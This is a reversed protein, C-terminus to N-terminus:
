EEKIRSFMSEINNLLKYRKMSTSSRAFEEKVLDIYMTFGGDDGMYFTSWDEDNFFRRAKLQEIALNDFSTAKFHRFCKYLYVFLQRQNLKISAENENLYSEGRRLTKYGLILLKSDKPLSLLQKISHIGNIVHVVMDGRLPTYAEDNFVKHITKGDLLSVGLGYFMNASKWRLLTDLHEQLHIENITINAIIGKAKLNILFDELDTHEFINGGGIALETGAVLTNLFEHNLNAINGNPTSNEHCFKCGVNCKDSIKIDINEPFQPKFEDNGERVKTGDTYITTTYNGNIYQSLQIM